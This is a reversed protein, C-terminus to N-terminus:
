VDNKHISQGPFVLHITIGANATAKVGTGFIGISGEGTIGLAIEVFEMRCNGLKNQAANFMSGIQDFVTEMNRKLVDLPIKVREVEKETLEPKTATGAPNFILITNSEEEM